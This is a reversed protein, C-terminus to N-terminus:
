GAHEELASTQPAAFKLSKIADRPIPPPRHAAPNMAVHLRARVMDLQKLESQQHALASRKDQLQKELEEVQGSVAELKAQLVKERRAIVQQVEEVGVNASGLTVRVLRVVMEVRPAAPLSRLLRIADAIAFARAGSSDAVAAIPGAAEPSPETIPELSDLSDLEIVDPETAPAPEALAAVVSPSPAQSPTPTVDPRTATAGGTNGDGNMHMDVEMSVDSIADTAVAPPATLPKETSIKNKRSKFFLGM